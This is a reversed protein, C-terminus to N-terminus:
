ERCTEAGDAVGERNEVVGEVKERVRNEKRGEDDDDDIVDGGDSSSLKTVRRQMEKVQEKV